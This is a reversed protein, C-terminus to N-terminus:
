KLYSQCYEKTDSSDPLKKSMYKCTIVFIKKRIDMSYYSNEKLFEVYRYHNEFMFDRLEKVKMKQIVSLINLICMM